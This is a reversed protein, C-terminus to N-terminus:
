IHACSNLFTQGAGSHLRTLNPSLNVAPWPPPVWDYCRQRTKQHSKANPRSQRKGLIFTRQSMQLPFFVPRLNVRFVISTSPPCKDLDKLM